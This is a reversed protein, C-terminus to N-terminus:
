TSGMECAEEYQLVGWTGHTAAENKNSERFSMRLLLKPQRRPRPHFATCFHQSGFDDVHLRQLIM